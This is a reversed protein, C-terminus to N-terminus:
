MRYMAPYGMGKDVPELWLEPKDYGLGEPADAGLEFLTPSIEQLIYPYIENVKPGCKDKVAEIWRVALAYDNVRRCAYLAAIIVNPEPVCDHALIDHMAQRVDWGDIDPRSFRM